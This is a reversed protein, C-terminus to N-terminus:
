RSDDHDTLSHDVAVGCSQLVKMVAEAPFSLGAAIRLDSLIEMNGFYVLDSAEPHLSVLKTIAKRSESHGHKALEGETCIDDVPQCLVTGYLRDLTPSCDNWTIPSIGASAVAAEIFDSLVCHLLDEILTRAVLSISTNPHVQLLQAGM